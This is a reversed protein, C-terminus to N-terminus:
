KYITVKNGPKHSGGGMPCVHQLYEVLLGSRILAVFNINTMNEHTCSQLIMSYTYYMNKSQKTKSKPSFIECQKNSQDSSQDM